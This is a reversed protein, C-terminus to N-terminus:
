TGYGLSKNVADRNRGKDGRPIWKAYSKLMVQLSHGHQQAVWWPDAGSTLAMTVSTDRLEKPPRHRIGCLRLQQAWFRGQFQDDHWAREVNPNFFVAGDALRTRGEQRKIVAAARGNLEVTREVNTKTREKDEGMVRAHHVKVERSRLDADAWQLAIQESPRLGAFAAFEYYDAMAAGIKPVARIRALIIEVEEASFPDPDPQQVRMNDIGDTPDPAAHGPAKCIMAFVGRLPILINNQTKRGLGKVPRGNEDLRDSALLALHALVKENTIRAPAMAGFTPTWYCALHRKYVALTSREMDRASLKAWVDVWDSFTRSGAPSEDKLKEAFKYNPFHSLLNFTGAKIEQVIQARQRRAHKMNAANPKLDLRVRWERPKGQPDSAWKFRVEITDGVPYCGGATQGAGM